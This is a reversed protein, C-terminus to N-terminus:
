QGRAPVHLVGDELKAEFFEPIRIGPLGPKDNLSLLMRGIPLTKEIPKDDGSPEDFSAVFERCGLFPTAFCQGNRVRRRFQDRYKAENVEPDHPVPFARIIYEVNRLALTHRPTHDDEVTYGGIGTKAWGEATRASSRTKIENRSISQYEIERLVVIEKVRWTFEPKWLINALLGLAATPTMVPYSVREVKMEPRTFCALKGCVKVEVPEDYRM